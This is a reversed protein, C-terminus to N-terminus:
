RIGIRFRGEVLGFGVHSGLYSVEAMLRSRVLWSGVKCWGLFQRMDLSM